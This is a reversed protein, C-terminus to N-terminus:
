DNLTRWFSCTATHSEPDYEAIRELRFLSSNAGVRLRFLSRITARDSRPDFLAAYEVPTLRLRCVLRERQSREAHETDHYHHLGRCGDRDEFCLTAENDSDHFLALPYCPTTTTAAWHETAPLPKLGEYLVIRPEVYDNTAITDRDGVTLVKASPAQAIYGALSAVPAFLPNTRSETGQKAGYSTTHYSWEGIPTGDEAIRSLVGDAAQYKLTTTEFCETVREELSTNDDDLQKTRWDVIDDKFFDDYPEIILRQSPKHSYIRLNFMQAIAELLQAQTFPHNAVDKFEVWEGYGAVGGFVPTVSCGSHLTLRQGPEAGEFILEDFREPSTPTLLKYPSRVDVEVTISGTTEVYDNYIAWDGEFPTYAGEDGARVYLTLPETVSEQAVFSHTDGAFRTHGVLMYGNGETHDFVVVKYAYGETLNDRCDKHPNNLVIQVACDGALSITDFGRLQRSSALRYETTYRIHYDFATSIERTPTFRIGSEDGSFCGGNNYAGTLRNGDEDVANPDATDVISGINSAFIPLAAYIRGSSDATDSTTTTRYAKFGMTAYAADSEVHPYAGSFMLKRYLESQMFSSDLTYGSEALMAEVVARVAIFPHYNHPMIPTQPTYMGGDSPTPYRDRWLPLYRVNAEDHWTREIDGLTMCCSHEVASEDLRTTAARKAWEEGGTRLRLKFQKTNGSQRTGILTAMGEFLTVGDATLTARHYSDNFREAHYIDDAFRMLREVEPTAAVEVTMTDGERWAEVSALRRSDYSPLTVKGVLPCEVGDIKLRTM